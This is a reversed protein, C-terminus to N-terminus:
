LKRGTSQDFGDDQWPDEQGDSYDPEEEAREFNLDPPTTEGDWEPHQEWWYDTGESPDFWDPPEEDGWPPPPHFRDRKSPRAVAKPV